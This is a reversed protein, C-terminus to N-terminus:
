KEMAKRFEKTWNEFEQCIMMRTTDLDSKKRCNLFFAFEDCAKDIIKNMILKQAKKRM